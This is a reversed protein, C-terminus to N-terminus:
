RVEGMRQLEYRIGAALMLPIRSDAFGYLGCAIFNHVEMIVTRGDGLVAVDLTYAWPPDDTYAAVMGEVTKRDPFTWFDGSYCCIDLIRGNWIFARWESKIDLLSESVLYCRGKPIGFFPVSGREEPFFFAPEAKARDARKVFLHQPDFGAKGSLIEEWESSSSCYAVKRGAYQPALLQPPINLPHIQKLGYWEHLWRECFEVSGVPIVLGDRLIEKSLVLYETDHLLIEKMGEEADPDRWRIERLAERAGCVWDSMMSDPLIQFVFLTQKGM